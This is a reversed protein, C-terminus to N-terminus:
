DTIKRYRIDQLTKILYQRDDETIWTINIKKKRKETKLVLYYKRGKRLLTKEMYIERVSNWDIKRKYGVRGIGTFVSSNKGISFVMIGSIYMLVAYCGFILFFSLLVIGYSFIQDIIVHVIGTLSVLICLIGGILVKESKIFVEVIKNTKWGDTNIYVIDDKENYEKISAIHIEENCNPCCVINESEEYGYEIDFIYKCEPCKIKM